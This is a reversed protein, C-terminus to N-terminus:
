PSGFPIDLEGAENSNPNGTLVVVNLDSKLGQVYTLFDLGDRHSNPFELDKLEKWIETLHNFILAEKPHISLWKNDNRNRRDNDM